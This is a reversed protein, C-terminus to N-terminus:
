ADDRGGEFRNFWAILAALGAITLVVAAIALAWALSSIAAAQAAETARAIGAEVALSGIRAPWSFPILGLVGGSAATLEGTM